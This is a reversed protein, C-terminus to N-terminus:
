SRRFFSDDRIKSEQKNLIKPLAKDVSKYEEGPMDGIYDSVDQSLSKESM